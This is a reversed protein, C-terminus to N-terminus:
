GQAKPAKICEATYDTCLYTFFHLANKGADDDNETYKRKYSMNTHDSLRTLCNRRECSVKM